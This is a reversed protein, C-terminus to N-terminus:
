GGPQPPTQFIIEYKSADFGLSKIWDLANQKDIDSGGYTIIITVANTDNPHAKSPGYDVRWTPHIEPLYSTLPNKATTIQSNQDYTASTKAEYEAMQTPHARAWDYGAQGNPTMLLRVTTTQGKTAQITLTQDAFGNRKAGVVHQGPKVGVKDTSSVKAGDVTVNIDDPVASQIDLTATKDKSQLGLYFICGILALVLLAAIIYITKRLNQNMM